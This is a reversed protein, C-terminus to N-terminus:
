QQHTVKSFGSIETAFYEKLKGRVKNEIQRVRERSINFVAGIEQLTRPEDSAIRHDFIFVAKENLSGKFEIVKKSLLESEEKRSIIEQVDEESSLTDMITDTSDDYLPAELSLDASFVRQKMEEVEREKVKLSNAILISEPYIGLAELRRTEKKLCFFLKRQSQTTGVKVLSWSEMIYKM